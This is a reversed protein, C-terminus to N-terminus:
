LQLNIIEMLIIYLFLIIVKQYTAIQTIIRLKKLKLIIKYIDMEVRQIFGTSMLEM